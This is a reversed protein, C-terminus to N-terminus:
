DFYIESTTTTWDGLWTWCQAVGHLVARRAERNRVMEQLKGLNMNMADIISDVMEKESARKKQGWCKGADPVKGILQNNADSSWFVLVEAEANTREIFIWHQDLKLNVSKIEKSATWPVQMLRRWCWLEFADIRQCEAKKVTWSEYSFM